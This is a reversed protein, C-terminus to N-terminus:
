EESYENNVKRKIILSIVIWMAAILCLVMLLKILSIGGWTESDNDDGDVTDEDQIANPDKLINIHIWTSIRLGESDTVNLTINHCGFPLSLDIDKGSDLKGSINSFWEYMLVDGYKIDPDFADAVAPQSSNEYYPRDKLIITAGYPPDNVPKVVVLLTHSASLHSDNATFEMYESGSWDPPPQIEVRSGNVIRASLNTMSGISFHLLDGDPDQFWDLLDISTDINDESMIIEFLPSDIIPGDNTGIVKLTFNFSDAGGKRDSVSVNAWYIGIDNQTPTGFLLGSLKDIHIFLIETSIYWEMEDKTPDIDTASFAIEFYEDEFVEGIEIHDIVPPDNINLV